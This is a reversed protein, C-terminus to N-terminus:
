KGNNGCAMGHFSTIISSSQQMIAESLSTFSNLALYFESNVPQIEKKVVDSNYLPYKFSDMLLDISEEFLFDYPVAMYYMQMTGGTAANDIAKWVGGIIPNYVPYINPYRKSGGSVMHEGFHALGPVTETYSGNPISLTVQSYDAYPDNILLGIMGNKTKILQFEADLRINPKIFDSDKKLITFAEDKDEDSDSKKLEVILVIVLVVLILICLAVIITCRHKSWCSPSKDDLLGIEM